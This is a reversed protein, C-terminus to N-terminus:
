WKDCDNEFNIKSNSILLHLSLGATMSDRDSVCPEIRWYMQSTLQWSSYLENNSGMDGAPTTQAHLVGRPEWLRLRGWCSSGSWQTPSLPSLHASWQVFDNHLRLSLHPSQESCLIKSLNYGFYFTYLSIIMDITPVSTWLKDWAANKRKQIYESYIWVCFSLRLYQNESMGVSQLTGTCAAGWAPWAATDGCRGASVCGMRRCAPPHHTPGPRPAPRPWRMWSWRQVEPNTTITENLKVTLLSCGKYDLFVSEM